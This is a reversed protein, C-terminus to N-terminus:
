VTNFSKAAFNRVYDIFSDAAPSLTRNKLTFIAFPWPRIQLDVPLIKVPLHSAALKPVATIFDSSALLYARLPVSLSELAINPVALGRARFAQTVDKYNATDPAGLIWREATLEALDIKRRRAWRTQQGAVVVVDDEFLFEVKVDGGLLESTYPAVFWELMLDYKREGLGSYNAFPVDAVRLVV